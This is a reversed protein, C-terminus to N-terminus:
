QPWVTMAPRHATHKKKLENVPPGTTTLRAILVLLPVLAVLLALLLLAAPLDVIVSDGCRELPVIRPLRTAEEDSGAVLVREPTVLRLLTAALWPLM